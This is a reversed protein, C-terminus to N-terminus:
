TVFPLPKNLIPLFVRKIEEDLMTGGRDLHKRYADEVLDLSQGGDRIPETADHIEYIYVMVWGGYVATMM